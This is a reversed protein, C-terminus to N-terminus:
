DGRIPDLIAPVHGFFPVTASGPKTPVAGPFPTIVISGTETQWFTDVVACQRGGVYENYWSRAQPNILEGVSGLVRLSSLDHPTVHHTG